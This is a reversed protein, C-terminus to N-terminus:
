VQLNFVGYVAPPIIAGYTINTSIPIKPLLFRKLLLFRKFLLFKNKKSRRVNRNAKTSRWIIYAETM